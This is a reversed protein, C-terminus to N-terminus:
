KRWYRKETPEAGEEPYDATEAGSEAKAAKKAAKGSKAPAANETAAAAAAVAEAAKRNVVLLEPKKNALLNRWVILAIGVAVLCLSVIQSVAISTGPLQLQDTRLGEIFFRGTGYCIFYTSLVMGDVRKFKRMLFLLGLTAFCLASEYLFTPHVQIYEVGDVVVPHEQMAQALADNINGSYVISKKIQMAFLNDTYGGFAERNFFNGWRGLGQGLVVGFVCNDMVKLLNMKKVKCFTIVCVAGVLIGGYIALGGARLNFVQLLNDKYEDWRFIVYYTRAGIVGLVLTILAMDLYDEDNDGDKKALYLILSVGLLMGLAIICGYFAITFNIGPITFSSILKNIKIGLHVFNIDPTSMVNGKRAPFIEYAPM